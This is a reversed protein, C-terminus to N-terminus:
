LAAHQSCSRSRPLLAAHFVSFKIRSTDKGMRSHNGVGRLCVGRVVWSLV